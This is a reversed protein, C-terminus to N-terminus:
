VKIFRVYHESFGADDDNLTAALEAPTYTIISEDNDNWLRLILEDTTDRGLEIPFLFAKLEKPKVEDESSALAKVCLNYTESEEFCTIELCAVDLLLRLPHELRNSYPDANLTEHEESLDCYYGYVTMLWDINIESLHREADDENTSADRLTCSGDPKFDILQYEKYIPAGDDGEEEVFVKHPLWSDPRDTIVTLNAIIDNQLQEFRTTLTM